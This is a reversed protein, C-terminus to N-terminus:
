TEDLRVVSELVASGDIVTRLRAGIDMDLGGLRIGGRLRRLEGEDIVTLSKFCDPADSQYESAVVRPLGSSDAVVNASIGLAVGLVPACIQLRTKGARAYCERKVMKVM